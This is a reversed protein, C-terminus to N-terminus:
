NKQKVTSELLGKFNDRYYWVLIGELLTIFLALLLLDSDVFIHFAVINIIISALATLALPVYKRVILLIGAVIEVGKELALFYGEGLFEMAAPSTPAFPEYGFLVVYGNLGAGLFITGLLIEIIRIFLNM